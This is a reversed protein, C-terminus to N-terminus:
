TALRDFKAADTLTAQMADDFAHFYAMFDFDNNVGGDIRIHKGQYTMQRTHCLACTIGLSEGKWRGETLVTKTLGVPLGDPNTRPNPSQPIVGYRESNAASRFLEQGDAVEVNLFIDYDVVRSGQSMQYFMERDAQSWAQNLYIVSDQPDDAQATVGATLGVLTGVAALVLTTHLVRM